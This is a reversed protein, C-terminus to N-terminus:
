LGGGHVVLFRPSTRIPRPFPVIHKGFLVKFENARLVCELLGGLADSGMERIARILLDRCCSSSRVVDLLVDDDLRQLAVHLIEHGSQDDALLFRPLQNQDLNEIANTLERRVRVWGASSVHYNDRTRAIQPASGDEPKALQRVAQMVDNKFIPEGSPHCFRLEEATIGYLGAIEEVFYHLDNSRPSIGDERAGLELLVVVQLHRQFDRPGIRNGRM